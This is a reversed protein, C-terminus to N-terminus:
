CSTPVCGTMSTSRWGVMTRRGVIRMDDQTSLVARVGERLLAHDDVVLVSIPAAAPQM